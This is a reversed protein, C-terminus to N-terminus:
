NRPPSLLRRPTSVWAKGRKDADLLGKKLLYNTKSESRDIVRAIAHAGWVLRDMPDIFKKPDTTEAMHATGSDSAAIAM